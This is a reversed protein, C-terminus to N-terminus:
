ARKPWRTSSTSQDGPLGPAVAGRHRPERGARGPGARVLQPRLHDHRGMRAAAALLAVLLPPAARRAHARRLARHARPPPRPARGAAQDRRGQRRRGVGRLRHVGAARAQGENLQGGNILRLHLLRLQARGLRKAEEDKSIRRTLDCDELRATARPRSAERADQERRRNYGIWWPRAGVAEVVHRVSRRREPSSWCSRTRSIASGAWRAVRRTSSASGPASTAPRTSPWRRWRRARRVPVRRAVFPACRRSSTWSGAVVRRQVVARAPRLGRVAGGVGPGGPMTRKSNFASRTSPDRADVRKRAVGYAEPADWAM